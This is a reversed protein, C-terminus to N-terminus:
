FETLRAGPAHEDATQIGGSVSSVAMAAPRDAYQIRRAIASLEDHDYVLTLADLGGTRSSLGSSHTKIWDVGRDANISAVERLAAAGHLKRNAYKICDRTRWFQM